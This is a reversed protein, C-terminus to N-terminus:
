KGVQGLSFQGGENENRQMASAWTLQCSLGSVRRTGGSLILMRIMSPGM